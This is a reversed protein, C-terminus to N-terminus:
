TPGGPSESRCRFKCFFFAYINWAHLSAWVGVLCPHIKPFCHAYMTTLEFMTIISSFCEVKKVYTDEGGLEVASSVRRWKGRREGWEGGEGWEGWEGLCEM